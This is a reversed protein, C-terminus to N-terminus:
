CKNLILICLKEYTAGKSQTKELVGLPKAM